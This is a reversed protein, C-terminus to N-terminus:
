DVRAAPVEPRADRSRRSSQMRIPVVVLLALAITVPAAWTMADYSTDTPNLVASLWVYFIGIGGIVAAIVTGANLERKRALLVIAGACILVYPIVWYYPYLTAVHAYVDLPTGGTVASLVIPVITSLVAIVVIARVPTKHKEDVHGLSKPLMGDVAMTAWVRPAYNMFGLVVAYCIVALCLDAVPALWGLGANDAMASLPSEGNATADAIAPLVPVTLLTAVLGVGGVIVPVLTMLRPITRMPDKTELATAASSEFGVFFTASLVIGAFFGSFTFDGFTFQDGFAFGDTFVNAVLVIAVIPTAVFLLGISLRTSTDLGRIAFWAVSLMALAYMIAQGVVGNAAPLDFVNAIFSGAYVGFVQLCVIVGALYGVALSAGALTSPKSGLEHGIYSYLAGSVVYRRAFPVIAVGIFAVLVTGALVSLWASSGAVPGALAPATAAMLVPSFTVVALGLAKPLSLTGQQLGKLEEHGDPAHEAVNSSM